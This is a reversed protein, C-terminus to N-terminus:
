TYCSPTPGFTHTLATLSGSYRVVLRALTATQLKNCFFLHWFAQQYMSCLRRYSKNKLIVCGGMPTCRM